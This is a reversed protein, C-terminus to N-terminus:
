KVSPLVEFRSTHIHLFCLLRLLITCQIALQIFSHEILNLMTGGRLRMVGGEGGGAWEVGLM